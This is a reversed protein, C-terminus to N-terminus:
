YNQANACKLNFTEPKQIHPTKLIIQELFSLFHPNCGRGLLSKFAPFRISIEM